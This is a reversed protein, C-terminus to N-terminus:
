TQKTEHNAKTTQIMDINYRGYKNVVPGRARGGSTEAMLRVSREAKTGTHAPRLRTDRDGEEESRGGPRHYVM